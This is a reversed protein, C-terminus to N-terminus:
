VKKFCKYHCKEALYGVRSMLTYAFILVRGAEVACCGYTM